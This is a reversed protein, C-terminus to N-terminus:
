VFDLINFDEISDPVKFVKKPKSIEVIKHTQLYFTVYDHINKKCEKSNEMFKEYFQNGDMEHFVQGAHRKEKDTAESAKVTKVATDIDEFSTGKAQPADVDDEDDSYKVDVDEIRVNTFVDDLQEDPIQATSKPSDEFAVDNDSVSMSETQKQETEEKKRLQSVKFLSKGVLAMPDIPTKKEKEKDNAVELLLKNYFYITWVNFAALVILFITEMTM